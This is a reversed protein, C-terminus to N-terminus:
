EIILYVMGDQKKQRSWTALAFVAVVLFASVCIAVMSVGKVSMLLTIPTPSQTIDYFAGSTELEIIRNYDADVVAKKSDVLLIKLPSMDSPILLKGVDAFANFSSFYSPLEKAIAMGPVSRLVGEHFFNTFVLAGSQKVVPVRPMGNFADGDLWANITATIQDTGSLVQELKLCDDWMCAAWRPNLDIVCPTGEEELWKVEMNSAGNRFGTADLVGNAYEIIAQTKPDKTDMAKFGFYLDFHGNGPRLDENWVMVTKHVGDRSASDIVYEKGRLYEQILIVTVKDGLFTTSGVEGHFIDEAQKFSTVIQDGASSTGQVVKFFVPNADSLPPNLSELHEKAESWTSVNKEKVSRLGAKRVAESMVWKNRRANALPGNSPNGKAGVCAALRDALYAAPDFTPIVAAIPVGLSRLKPCIEQTALTDNPTLSDYTINKYIEAHAPDDCPSAKGVHTMVKVIKYEQLLPVHAVYSSVCDWLPDVVFVVAEDKAALVNLLCFLCLFPLNLVM